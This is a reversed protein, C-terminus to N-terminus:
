SFLLWDVVGRTSLRCCCCWCCCCIDGEDADVLDLEGKGNLDGVIGFALLLLLLLLLLVLDDEGRRGLGGVEGDIEDGLGWGWGKRDGNRFLM